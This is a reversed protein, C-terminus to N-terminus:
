RDVAATAAVRYTKGIVCRGHSNVQLRFRRGSNATKLIDLADLAASAFVREDPGILRIHPVNGGGISKVDDSHVDSEAAEFIQGAARQGIIKL